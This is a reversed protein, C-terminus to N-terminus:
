EINQVQERFQDIVAKLELGVATLAPDGAKSCLTNAERNFEQSLFDLRRGVAGGDAILKRAAEVHLRLRDVEERVDDGVDAPDREAREAVGRLARHAREDLPEAVLDPLVEAM